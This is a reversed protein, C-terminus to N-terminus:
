SVKIILNQLAGQDFFWAPAYRRYLETQTEELWLTMFQLGWTSNKVLWAGSNAIIESDQVIFECPINDHYKEEAWQNAADVLLSIPQEYEGILADADLYVIWDASLSASTHNSTMMNVVAVIRAICVGNDTSNSGHMLWAVNMDDLRYTFSYHHHHSYNAKNHTFNHVKHMYHHTNMVSFLLFSDNSADHAIASVLHDYFHAVLSCISVFYLFYASPIM